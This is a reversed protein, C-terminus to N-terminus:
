KHNKQKGAGKLIKTINDVLSDLNNKKDEPVKFTVTQTKVWPIADSENPKITCEGDYMGKFTDLEDGCSYCELKEAHPLIDGVLLGSLPDCAFLFKIWDMQGKEKGLTWNTGNYTITKGSTDGITGHAKCVKNEIDRLEKLRRCIFKGAKHKGIDDLTIRSHGYLLFQDTHKPISYTVWCKPKRLGVERLYRYLSKAYDDPGQKNKLTKKNIVVIAEDLDKGMAAFLEKDDNNM